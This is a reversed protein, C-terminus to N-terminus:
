RIAPLNLNLGRLQYSFNDNLLMPLGIVNRMYPAEYGPIYSRSSITTQLNLEMPPKGPSIEKSFKAFLTIKPQYQLNNNGVNRDKYPDDLPSIYMNFKEVKIRDSNLVYADKQDFREDMNEEEVKNFEAFVIKKEASVYEFWVSRTQDPSFLVLKSAPNQLVVNDKVGMQDYSIVGNRIEDSFKDFIARAESYMVRYENAERQTMVISLYSQMVVGMFIVFITMAIMMEILTFGKQLRKNFM